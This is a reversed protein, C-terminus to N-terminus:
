HYHANAPLFCLKNFRPSQVREHIIAIGTCQYLYFGDLQGRPPTEIIPTFPGRTHFYLNREVTCFTPVKPSLFIVQKPFTFMTRVIWQRYITLLKAECLLVCNPDWYISLIGVEFNFDNLSAHSSILTSCLNAACFSMRSTNTELRLLARCLMEPQQKM